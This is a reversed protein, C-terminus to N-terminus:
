FCPWNYGMTWYFSYSGLFRLTAPQQYCFFPPFAYQDYQEGVSLSCVLGMWAWMHCAPAAKATAESPRQSPDLHRDTLFWAWAWFSLICACLDTTLSAFIGQLGTRGIMPFIGEGTDRASWRSTFSVHHWGPWTVSIFATCSLYQVAPLLTGDKSHLFNEREHIWPNKNAKQVSGLCDPWM